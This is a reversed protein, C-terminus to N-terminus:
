PLSPHQEALNSLGHPGPLGGVMVAVAGLTSRDHRKDMM